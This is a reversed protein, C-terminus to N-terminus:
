RTRLLKLLKKVYPDDPYPSHIQYNEKFTYNELIVYTLQALHAPNDDQNLFFHFTNKYRYSNSPINSKIFTLRLDGQWNGDAGAHYIPINNIKLPVKTVRKSHGGIIFNIQPYRAAIKKDEELGLHSLLIIIDVKSKLDKLMSGLFTELPKIQIQNYIPKNRFLNFADRGTVGVVAIKKTGLKVVKYPTFKHTTSQLRYSIDASIWPLQKRQSHLYEIGNIFEQEGVLLATYDLSKLSDIVIKNKIHGTYRSFVDGASLLLVNPHEKRYTRIFHARKVLGSNPASDCLCSKLVASTSSSYLITIDEALLTNVRLADISGFLFLFLVIFYLIYVNRSILLKIKKM